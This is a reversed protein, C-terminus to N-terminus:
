RERKEKKTVEGSGVTRRVGERRENRQILTLSGCSCQQKSESKDIVDLSYLLYRVKIIQTFEHIGDDM